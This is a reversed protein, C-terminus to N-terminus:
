SSARLRVEHVRRTVAELRLGAATAMAADLLREARARDAEGAPEDLLASAYDVQTQAVWIPAKLAANRVLAREFHEIAQARRGITAALRGLYRAASGYCVTALGIVVMVDAFPALMDYVQRAREREGLQSCLEGLMTVAILWQGDRPLDEFDRAALTELERRAEERRGVHCLLLALAARWAPVAPYRSVLERAAGELEGIRDQQRRISFLQIAYYQTATVAEVHAGAMLAQHALEDAEGIRGALLTRMARWVAANWLYVPQRLQHAGAAFAAIQAEVGDHDGLELLDVVLWAHGQLELELDGAQRALTLLETSASLREELQTPEWFARRRAACAYARSRGDGLEHALATAEASLEKMRDRQPSYYITSCM